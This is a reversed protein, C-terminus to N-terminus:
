KGSKMSILLDWLPDEGIALDPEDDAVAMRPFNTSDMKPSRKKQVDFVMNYAHLLLHKGLRSDASPLLLWFPPIM